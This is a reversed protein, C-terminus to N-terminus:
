DPIIKYRPHDPSLRNMLKHLFLISWRRLLHHMNEYNTSSCSSCFQTQEQKRPSFHHFIGKIFAKANVLCDNRENWGSTLCWKQRCSHTRTHMRTHSGCRAAGRGSSGNPLSVFFFCPLVSKVQSRVRARQQLARQWHTQSVADTKVRKKNRMPQPTSGTNRICGAGNQVYQHSEHPYLTNDKFQLNTPAGGTAVFPYQESTACQSERISNM